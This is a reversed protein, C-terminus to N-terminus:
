NVEVVYAEMGERLGKLVDIGETVEGIINTGDFGEATPGFKSSAFFRVGM